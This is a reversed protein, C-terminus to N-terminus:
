AKGWTAPRELEPGIRFPAERTKRCLRLAQRVKSLRTHALSSPFRTALAIGLVDRTACPSLAQSAKGSGRSTMTPASPM